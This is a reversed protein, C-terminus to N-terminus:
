KVSWYVLVGAAFTVIGVAIGLWLMRRQRLREPATLERPNTNYKKEMAAGLALGIPLGIAPGFAINGLALGIPIGIPIGLVMGIAIYHGKTHQEQDDM